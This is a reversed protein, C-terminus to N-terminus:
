SATPENGSAGEGAPEAVEAKEGNATTVFDRISNLQSFSLKMLEEETITPISRRIIKVMVQIESALDGQLGQERVLKDNAIFDELTTEIVKHEKGNFKITFDVTSSVADLDLYKTQM